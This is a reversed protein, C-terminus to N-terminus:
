KVVDRKSKGCSCSSVYNANVQGCSCLWSDPGPNQLGEKKLNQISSYMAQDPLAAVMIYGIIGLFFCVWFYSNGSYGKDAAIMSFRMCITLYITIIITIGIIYWFLM